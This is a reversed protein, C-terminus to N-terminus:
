VCENPFNIDVNKTYGEFWLNIVIKSLDKEDHDDSYSKGRDEISSLSGTKEKPIPLAGHISDMYPKGARDFNPWCIADGARPKVVIVGNPDANGVDSEKNSWSETKTLRPFETGGVLPSGNPVRLYLLITYARQHKRPPDEADYSDHHTDYFDNGTARYYVISGDEYPHPHNSSPVSKGNQDHTGEVLDIPLGALILDMLERSYHDDCTYALQSVLSRRLARPKGKVLEHQELEEANSKIDNDMLLSLAQNLSQRPVVNHVQYLPFGQDNSILEVKLHRGESSIHQSNWASKLQHHQDHSSNNADSEGWFFNRANIGWSITPPLQSRKKARRKKKKKINGVQLQRDQANNGRKEIRGEAQQDTNVETTSVTSIKPVLKLGIKLAMANVDSKQPRSNNSRTPNKKKNTRGNASNIHMSLASVGRFFITTGLSIRTIDGIATADGLRTMVM